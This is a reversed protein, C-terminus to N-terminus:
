NPPVGPGSKKRGTFIDLIGKMGEKNGKIADSLGPLVNQMKLKAMAATDPLFRPKGFTGTVLSPITMDGNPGAMATTLYGGIRSGGVEEALKKNLLTRLKLNISQDVLNMLGAISVSANDLDLKLNDTSRFLM